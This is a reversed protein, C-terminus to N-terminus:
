RIVAGYFAQEPGDLGEDTNDEIPESLKPQPMLTSEFL